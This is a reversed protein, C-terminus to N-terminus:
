RGILKATERDANEIKEKLASTLKGAITSIVDIDNLPLGIKISMLPADVDKIDDITKQIAESGFMQTMHTNGNNLVSQKWENKEDNTMKRHLSVIVYDDDGIKDSMFTKEAFDGIDALMKKSEIIVSNLSVISERIEILNGDDKADM